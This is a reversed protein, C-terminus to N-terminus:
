TSSSCPKRAFLPQAKGRSLAAKRPYEIKPVPKDMGSAPYSIHMM